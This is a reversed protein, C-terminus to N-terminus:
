RMEVLILKYKGDRIRLTFDKELVSSNIVTEEGNKDRLTMKCVRVGEPGYTNKMEPNVYVVLTKGFLMFAYHCAPLETTEKKGKYSWDLQKPEKSFMWGPLVPSPSFNLDGKSNVLFPKAGLNMYLWMHVFEATSGSLRAVFGTGHLATNSNASTVVFSSNELVSRGYIAPDQFPILADKFDRFFEEHLGSRLIELLFKYEMHLFISENELWGPTFVTGRGLEKPMQSLSECIKYMKLKKDYVNSARVAEYQKRAEEGTALKMFHVPGELFLATPKQIFKKPLLYTHGKDEVTEYETIEHMFYSNLVGTKPCIAKAIGYDLKKLANNLFKQVAGPSLVKDEGSVGLRVAQRYEEKATASQDWYAFSGEEPNEVSQKLLTDLKSFFKATEKPLITDRFMKRKCKDLLFLVLRKLELTENTSSGFLGPLGNLSDNWNSKGGELEVGVGFPDLTALKNVVLSLIKSFLTSTYVEGTGKKTKVRTDFLNRNRLRHHDEEVNNTQFPKGNRLIYRKKRPNVWAYNQYYTYSRDNFLLDTEKEPFLSLFSEVLDINYIWHDSWYGEAFDSDEIKSSEDFVLALFDEKSINLTVSSKELEFLLSGPTFPKGAFACLPEIFDPNSFAGQLKEKLRATNEVYFQAGKLVLPNHGDLQMLNYFTKINGEMLDPNFWIDNRRNQNIDRFNGNGQSFYSPQVSFNNYDRELDGHKRSYAHFVNKKGAKSPLTMPFGGRLLNDIFTQRCYYDYVVSSSSTAIFNQLGSIIQNNEEEKSEFWGNRSAKEVISDALDIHTLHGFIGYFKRSEGAKLTFAQHSMACPTFNEFTQFDPLTFSDAKYFATPYDLSTNTGFVVQPDIIASLLKENSYYFSFHGSHIYDVEPKDNIEVKLKYIPAKKELNVVQVWAEGTRSMHKQVWSNTGYSNIWPLGDIVEFSASDSSINTIEVKRALGPFNENPVTIYTVKVKLGYTQNEEELILHSSNIIMRHTNQSNDESPRFPEYHFTADGKKIKIFTRFGLVSSLQYSRNAPFFELISKDKNEIGFSAIGQGRNVYFVWLPIGMLGAVGPFFSSFPKQDNYNQITTEGNPAISYNNQSM